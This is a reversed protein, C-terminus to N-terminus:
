FRLVFQKMEENWGQDKVKIGKKNQGSIQGSALNKDSSKGPSGQGL